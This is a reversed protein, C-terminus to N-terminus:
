FRSSFLRQFRNVKEIKVRNFDRELDSRVSQLETIEQKLKEVTAAREDKPETDSDQFIVLSLAPM